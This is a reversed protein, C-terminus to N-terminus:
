PNITIQQINHNCIYEPAANDPRYLFFPTTSNAIDSARMGEPLYIVGESKSGDMFVIAIREGDAGAMMSTLSQVDQPVLRKIQTKKILSVSDNDSLVLLFPQDQNIVNIVMEDPACFLFCTIPAGVAPIVVVPIKDKPQWGLSNDQRGFRIPQRGWAM